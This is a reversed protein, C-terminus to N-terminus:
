IAEKLVVLLLLSVVGLTGVIVGFVLGRAVLDDVTLARRRAEDALVTNFAHITDESAAIRELHAELVDSAALAGSRVSSAISAVGFPDSM